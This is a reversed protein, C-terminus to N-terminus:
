EKTREHVDSITPHWKVTDAWNVESTKSTDFFPPPLVLARKEEPWTTMDPVGKVFSHVTGSTGVTENVVHCAFDYVRQAIMQKWEERWDDRMTDIYVDRIDLLDDFLLEAFGSFQMDRDSMSEGRATRREIMAKQEDTFTVPPKSLTKLGQIQGELGDRVVRRLQSVLDKSMRQQVEAM